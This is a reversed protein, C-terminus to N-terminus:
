SAFRLREVPQGTIRAIDEYDQDVHLVIHSMVEAVAAVLLDPLSPGRLHGLRTLLRQVEIARGEARPPTLVPILRGLLGDLESTLDALSRMSYGIELRTVTAVYVLGREIRDIWLDPEDAVHLRTYASKDILWTM